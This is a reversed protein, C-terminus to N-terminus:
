LEPVTGAKMEKILWRGGAQVLSDDSFTHAKIERGKVDVYLCEFYLSARDGNVKLRIRQAPTYAVWQNQPQFSGAVTAFYTRVQDKGSYTKGGVSLTADDAFLSMMLDLNKTSAAQHFIIEVQHLNMFDVPNEENGAAPVVFAVCIAAIAALLTSIRTMANERQVRYAVAATELANINLEEDGQPSQLRWACYPQVLPRKFDAQHILRCIAKL